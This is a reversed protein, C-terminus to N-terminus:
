QSEGTGLSQGDQKWHGSPGELSSCDILDLCLPGSGQIHKLHTIMCSGVAPEPSITPCLHGLPVFSLIVSSTCFVSVKSSYVGQVRTQADHYHLEVRVEVTVMSPCESQM